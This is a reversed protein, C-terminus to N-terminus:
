GPLGRSACPKGDEPRMATLAHGSQWGEPQYGRAISFNMGTRKLHGTSGPPVLGKDGKRPLGAAPPLREHTFWLM